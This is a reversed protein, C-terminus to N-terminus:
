YKGLELETKALEHLEDGMRHVAKVTLYYSNGRGGSCPALYAGPQDWTPAKHEAVVFFGEPLESTHGPVSPVTVKNSGPEIVYGFQGHGGNDMPQYTRDSFELVIANAADPINNVTLAPSEPNGGFRQCQQGDPVKDGSWAADNFTAELEQAAAPVSTLFAPHLSLLLLLLPRRHAKPRSIM